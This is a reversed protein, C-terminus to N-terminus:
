AAIGDTSELNALATSSAASQLRRIQSLEAYLDAIAPFNFDRELLTPKVGHRAYTYALLSWVSDVVPRGHTDIILDAAEQEHGAVHLYAIRKSPLADIFRRADYGHNVSNVHVNNVDLLMLCDAESLVANIFETEKLETSLPAYYSSNEVAIQQGLVDQVQKIRDSIHIVMDGTFPLPMLDYLHGGDTCASLHESYLAANHESLFEKVHAVHALDLADPGGLSLSLGHCILPRQQLLSKLDRKFKGGVGIWNEPALEFFDPLSDAQSLLQALLGRRMGLGAGALNHRSM